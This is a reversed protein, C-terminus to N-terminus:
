SETGFPIPQLFDAPGHREVAGDVEGALREGRDCSVSRVRSRTPADVSQGMVGSRRAPGSSTPVDISMASLTNHRLLSVRESPPVSPDLTQIDMGTQDDLVMRVASGAPERDAQNRPSGATSTLSSTRTASSFFCGRRRCVVRRNHREPRREHEVVRRAVVVHVGDDRAALAGRREVHAVNAGCGSGAVRGVGGRSLRRRGDIVRRTAPLAGDPRRVTRQARPPQHRRGAGRPRGVRRRRPDPRRRRRSGVEPADIGATMDTDMYGVYLGLVQTRQALLEQRLSNTLSWGAAKSACYIATAPMSVWSLVSLVNVIAGGGNAALAPAFARSLALPGFM